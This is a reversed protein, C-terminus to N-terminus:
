QKLTKQLQLVGDRACAFLEQANRENKVKAKAPEDGTKKEAPEADAAAPQADAAATPQADAAAAPPADAAPKSPSASHAEEVQAEDASSSDEM